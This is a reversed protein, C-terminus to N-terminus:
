IESSKLAIVRAVQEAAESLFRDGNEMAVSLPLVGPVISFAADIGNNFIAEYGDGLQGAFAIVPIGLEKAAKAVGVPTKGYPTQHDLRGEGTIVLDANLLHSKFNTAELVLKIGPELRANFFALMGAGLGGAAGAGPINRVDKQFTSTLINAFHTLSQDLEAVCQPDAGKQPGYIASAGRDGLLPNDVDCAVDIACDKLLPHVESMDIKALSSLAAGGVNIEKNDEDLLKIGLAQAAGAGGDNTASGGIGLIIRKAGQELADKILEGTGFTTTIKPDRNKPEALHLGSASAMEIIALKEDAAFAYMAKVKSQLPGTVTLTRINANLADALSQVTGEGGDAMPVCTYEVSSFIKKFGKQISQAVELATMSEKFSDPAIIIKRM